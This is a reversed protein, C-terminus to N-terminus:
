MTVINPSQWGQIPNSGVLCLMTVYTETERGQTGSVARNIGSQDSLLELVPQHDLSIMEPRTAKGTSHLM